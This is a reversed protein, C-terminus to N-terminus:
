AAAAEVTSRFKSQKPKLYARTTAPSAHGLLDQVIALDGCIDHWESAATHRLKHMTLSGPLRQGVLKGVYAPTLHGAGDRGPFFYGAGMGRLVRAFDPPLPVDRVKGGKGVVRITDGVLDEVIWSSHSTAVEARRMGLEKAMRAMLQVRAPADAMSAVYVRVPVPHPNPAKASVKPLQDAPNTTVLRKALAWGYFSQFSARRGRRTEQGWEHRGCFEELVDGTVRWPEVSVGAALHTLHNRRTTRTAVSHGANKAHLLYAAIAKTWTPTIM